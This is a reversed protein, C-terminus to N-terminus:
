QCGSVQDQALSQAYGENREYQSNIKLWDPHATLIDIVETLGCYGGRSLCERMVRRILDLDEATDLTLRYNSLDTAHAVNYAPFLEPHKWIYPTVHERESALQAEHWARELATFSFVETDFGDPYTPPHVNSVYSYAGSGDIYKQIVADIVQYDSLQCDGTIRVVAQAGTSKVAQYYRDLVDAESGRYCAVGFSQAWQALQEDAPAITTALVVQTILKSMQAREVVWQVAPKGAIDMLMKGPLRSAGMRAQIVAVVKM